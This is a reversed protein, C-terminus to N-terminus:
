YYKKFILDKHLFIMLYQSNKQQNIQFKMLQDSNTHTKGLSGTEWTVVSIVRSVSM